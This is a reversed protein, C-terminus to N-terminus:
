YTKRPPLQLHLHAFGLKKVKAISNTANPIVIFHRQSPSPAVATPSASHNTQLEKAIQKCDAQFGNISLFHASPQCPLHRSTNIPMPASKPAVLKALYFKATSIAGHAPPAISHLPPLIRTLDKEDIITAPHPGM